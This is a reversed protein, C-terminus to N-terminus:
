KKIISIAYDAAIKKIINIESPEPTARLRKFNRLRTFKIVIEYGKLDECYNDIYIKMWDVPLKCSLSMFEQKLESYKINKKSTSANIKSNLSM